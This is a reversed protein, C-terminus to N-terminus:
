QAASSTIPSLRSGSAKPLHSGAAALSPSPQGWLLPPRGKPAYSGQSETRGGAAAGTRAEGFRHSGWLREASMQM